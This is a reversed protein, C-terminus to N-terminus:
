APQRARDRWTQSSKGDNRRLDGSIRRYRQRSHGGAPHSHRHVVPSFASVSGGMSSNLGAKPPMIRGVLVAGGIGARGVGADRFVTYVAAAGRQRRLRALTKSATKAPLPPFVAVDIGHVADALWLASSGALLLHRQGVRCAALRRVAGRTKR